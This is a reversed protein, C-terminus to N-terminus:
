AVSLPRLRSYSSVQNHETDLKYKFDWRYTYQADSLRAKKNIDLSNPLAQGGKVKTTAIVTNYKGKPMCRKDEEKMLDNFHRLVIGCDRPVVRKGRTSKEPRAPTTNEGESESLEEADDASEDEVGGAAADDRAKAEKSHKSGGSQSYNHHHLHMTQANAILNTGAPLV